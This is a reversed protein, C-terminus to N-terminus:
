RHDSIPRTTGPPSIPPSPAPSPAPTPAPPTPTPPADPPPTPQADPGPTPAPPAPTPQADPAPTPAPPTPQADPAPTPPAPPTPQADPAPTPAPPMPQADPAPTPPPTEPAPTPTPATPQTEPAPTPTPTTPQTEPAPSTVTGSQDSILIHFEIRRNQARGKNTKNSARPVDPGHGVTEIRDAAIGQDVLYWKVADARKQSLAMNRERAGRDDTHGEIRIRIAAYERLIAAAANLTKKSKPRIRAKGFDFTIGDIVGTFQKVIKPVEDPCGDEDDFGNYTEPEAPCVDSMDPKGDGDNDLDPCGDEDQFRDFDEAAQPCGDKSGLLGDGDYDIEPCGDADDIENKTEPEDVCADDPDLIGDGDRDAVDPCGDRDRFGNVTEPEKPCDDDPDLLGDGDTDVPAPPPAAKGPHLDWGTQVGFHIEFTSVVDDVRGATLGHRLDVRGALRDTLKWSVGPGWYFAADTDDAMFPSSTIVSEGGVGVVLHPTLLYNSKLRAIAHIRWGLVPAAFSDRGGEDSEGTSALALKGEGEVGLQPDYSSGRWLDPFAIFGIRGGLLLSTGPVQEPAWANGLEIDDGFHDLGLFGGVEIRRPPDAAVPSALVASAALIPAALRVRSVPGSCIGPAPLRRAKPGRPQTAAAM